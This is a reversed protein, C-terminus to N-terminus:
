PKFEIQQIHAGTTVHGTGDLDLVPQGSADKTTRIGCLLNASNCGPDAPVPSYRSLQQEQMPSNTGSYTFWYYNVAGSNSKPSTFAFCMVAACVAVIGTLYKKM